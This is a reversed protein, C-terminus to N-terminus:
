EYHILIHGVVAKKKNSNFTIRARYAYVGEPVFENKYKGDWEKVDDDLRAIYEGWRDFIFCEIHQICYGKIFWKENTKDGNPTFCNPLYAEGDESPKIIISDNLMCGNSDTILIYYRGTDLNDFISDAMNGGGSFSFLYPATGGSVNLISFSGNSNDCDPSKTEYTYSQPGSSNDQTVITDITLSCGNIDTITLTYNGASLNDYITTSSQGLTNLQYQYPPIGGIVADISINGINQTCIAPEISLQVGTPGISPLVTFSTDFSCNNADQVSLIYNGASLNAFLTSTSFTQNDISFQYPALGGNVAGLNIAGNAQACTTNSITIVIDTPGNLSTLIIYPAVYICGAGDSVELSYTGAALNSFSITASLGQGNFNYSYPSTGGTVAGLTVSGNTQSCSPDVTTVAIASPGNSTNLIIDPANFICGAGDTVALTYTGSALNTYSTNGSFGQNNFNYTYPATGGTVSGLTVTGNSQGCSPNYPTVAIATPGNSTTITASPATYVCGSADQVLLTYSGAALTSYTITNSYGLSNFNYTYPATGGTVTGLSVSGNSQSCTSNTINVVIATPGNANNLAIAPASFICGNADQVDLTYNGAALNPFNTTSGYGLNNFNYTYPATGGTVNGLSVLGDSQGCSPNTPTVAIATPGNSNSLSVSPAIYTCGAADTVELTYSGAALNPYNTTASFGLNNFNYTYPATGGVVAGLSVAGNSQGCAPNTPTTTIGTPGASSTLVSNPANFTCGSADQVILSYNGAALNPYNTTASFGLNNFNYTYPSTGGTVTGLAIAGNSQGCSPNTPTVTIATPATGGTLVINPASYTCGAADKVILTYSGAALNSYNTTGSFGLNNFNYTYPGVGGTVAGLTVSGNSLGCSANTPTIVINTPGASNSLVITTDKQCGNLDISVQYSGAALNSATNNASVNPVWTYTYAGAPAPNVTIAGNSAGCSPATTTASISFPNAIVCAGNCANITGAVNRVWTNSGDTQRASSFGNGSAQGAYEATGIALNAPGSLSSVVACGGTGAPIRTPNTNIDTDTGWKSAEGANVTWYVADIATGSADYLMMYGDGNPMYWRGAPNINLNATGCYTNLIFTAGSNTGGISVFGLPPIITGSPFRFAGHSAASTGAINCGLIYCSIDVSNCPDTNYLEIFEAGDNPTCDVLNQPNTGTASGAPQMQVENIVVQSHAIFSLLIFLSSCLSRYFHEIMIDRFKMKM